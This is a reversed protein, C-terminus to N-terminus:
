CHLIGSDWAWYSALVDAIGGLGQATGSQYWNLLEPNIWFATENDRVLVQGLIASVDVQIYPSSCNFAAWPGSFSSNTPIGGPIFDESYVNNEQPLFHGDCVLVNDKELFISPIYSTTYTKTNSYQQIYGFTRYCAETFPIVVITSFLISTRM